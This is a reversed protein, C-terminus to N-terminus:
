SCSYDSFGAFNAINAVLNSGSKKRSNEVPPRPQGHPVLGLIPSFIRRFIRGFYLPPSELSLSRDKLTFYVILSAKGEVMDRCFAQDRFTLGGGYQPASLPAESIRLTTGDSYPSIGGGDFHNGESRSEFWTIATFAKVSSAVTVFRLFDYHMPLFGLLVFWSILQDGSPGLRIRPM